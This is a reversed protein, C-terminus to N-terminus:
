KKDRHDASLSSRATPDDGSDNKSKSTDSRILSGKGDSPGPVFNEILCNGDKCRCDGGLFKPLQGKDIYQLLKDNGFHINSKTIPDVFPSALAWATKVMLGANVVFMQLLTEPYCFQDVHIIKKMPDIFKSSLHSLGLGKLDLIVVQKYVRQGREDSLRDKYATVREMMQIHFHMIDDHTFEKQIKSPNIMGLREIYVVHGDRTEGHLGTVWMTKFLAEKPHITSVIKEVNVEDRWKLMMEVMELSKQQPHPDDKFGRVFRLLTGQSTRHKELQPKLKEVILDLTQQEKESVPANEPVRPTKKAKADSM